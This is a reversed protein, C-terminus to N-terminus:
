AYRGITLASATSLALFWLIWSESKPYDVEVWAVGPTQIRSEQPHLLFQFLSHVRRRSLFVTREGASVNKEITKGALTLRLSGRVAQTPRIRWSIQQDVSDRVPPTEVSFEPPGDLSLVADKELQATVVAAQGVPLPRSGYVADLQLAIWALPVASILLPPLLLRFLRANEAILALQARFILRPDDAFLRFELLHAYVRKRATQVAARDTTRHFIWAVGLGCAASILVLSVPMM